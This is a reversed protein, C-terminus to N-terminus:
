DSLTVYEALIMAANAPQYFDPGRPQQKMCRRQDVAVGDRPLVREFDRWEIWGVKAFSMSCAAHAIGSSDVVVGTGAVAQQWDAVTNNSAIEVM